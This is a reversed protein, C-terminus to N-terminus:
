ISGTTRSIGGLHSHQSDIDDLYQPHPDADNLHATMLGDATGEPDAGVDSATLTVTGSKGNVSRVQTASMNDMRRKLYNTRNALRQAQENAPGIDTGDYGRVPTDLELLPVDATFEDLETINPM